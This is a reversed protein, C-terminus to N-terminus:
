STGSNGNNYILNINQTQDSSPLYVHSLLGFYIDYNRETIDSDM